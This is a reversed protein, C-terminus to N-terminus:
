VSELYRKRKDVLSRLYVQVVILIPTINLHIDVRATTKRVRIFLNTPAVPHM